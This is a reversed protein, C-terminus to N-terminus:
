LESGYYLGELPHWENTLLIGYIDVFWEADCNFLLHTGFYVRKSLVDQLRKNITNELLVSTENIIM